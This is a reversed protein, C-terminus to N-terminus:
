VSKSPQRRFSKWSDAIQSQSLGPFLTIERNAILKHIQTCSTSNRVAQDTCDFYKGLVALTWVKTASDLRPEKKEIVQLLREIGARHRIPCYDLVRPRFPDPGFKPDSVLDAVVTFDVDTEINKITTSGEDNTLDPTVHTGSKDPIVGVYDVGRTEGNIISSVANSLESYPANPWAYAVNVKSPSNPQSVPDRRM